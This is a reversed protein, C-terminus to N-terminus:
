IRDVLESDRGEGQLSIGHGIASFLVLGAIGIALHVGSIASLPPIEIWYLISVVVGIVGIGSYGLAWRREVPRPKDLYGAVVRGDDTMRVTKTGEDYEVIGYEVMRPVHSQMLASYVSDHINPSVDGDSRHIEHETVVDVLEGIAVPEGRDLLYRLAVRRRGNSLVDYIHRREIDGDPDSRFLQPVRRAVDVTSM